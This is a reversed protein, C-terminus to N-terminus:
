VATFIGSVLYGAEFGEGINRLIFAGNGARRDAWIFQVCEFPEHEDPIIHSFVEVLKEASWEHLSDITVENTETEGTFTDLSQLVLKKM